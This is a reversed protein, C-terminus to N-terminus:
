NGAGEVSTDGGENDDTGGAPPDVQTEKAKFTVTVTVNEAPMTFKYDVSVDVDAGSETKVSVSEVEYDDSDPTIVLTVETDAATDSVPAVSGNETEAITVTFTTPAPPVVDEFTVTVTVDEAPMTFKNGTVTVAGSAGTVTIEKLKKDAPVNVTLTVETGAAAETVSATVEEASNTVTVTFTSPAVAVWKAKLTLPATVPKTFDYKTDGNYWGKFTFGEKVPDEAPKEVRAEEAVSVVVATTGNDADFTVDYMTVPATGNDIWDKMTAMDADISSSLATYNDEILTAKVTGMETPTSKIYGYAAGFNGTAYIKAAVIVNKVTLPADLRGAIGGVYEIQANDYDGQLRDLAEQSGIIGSFFCNEVRTKGTVLGILGGFRDDDYGDHTMKDGKPGTWINYNVICADKLILNKLVAGDGANGIFGLGQHGQYAYFGTITHGCGDFTGEFAVEKTDAAQDGIENNGRKKGISDLVWYKNDFVGPKVEKPETFDEGLLNENIVIDNKLEIVDGVFTQPTNEYKGNMIEVLEALDHITYISLNSHDKSWNRISDEPIVENPDLPPLHMRSGGNEETKASPDPDPTPDSETSCAFFMSVAFIGAMFKTIKKM